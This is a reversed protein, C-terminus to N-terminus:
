WLSPHVLLLMIFLQEIDRDMSCSELSERDWTRFGRALLLKEYAFTSKRIRKIAANFISSQIHSTVRVFEYLSSNADFYRIPFHFDINTRVHPTAHAYQILM